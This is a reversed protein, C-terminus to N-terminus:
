LSVTKNFHHRSEALSLLYWEEDRNLPVLYRLVANRVAKEDRAYTPASLALLHGDLHREIEVRHQYADLDQHMVEM